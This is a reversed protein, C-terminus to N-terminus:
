AGPRVSSLFNVIKTVQTDWSIPDPNHRGFNGHDIEELLCDLFEEPEATAKVTNPLNSVHAHQSKDAVVMRTGSAYMDSAVGSVYQNAPLETWCWLLDCAQLRLNLEATPLFEHYHMFNEPHAIRFTALHQKMKRTTNPHDSALLQILWGHKWSRPILQSIFWPFWRHEMLFGSAGIVVPFRTLAYHEKLQRRDTLQAPIWAPHSIELVPKSTERILSKSMVIFGVVYDSFESVDASHGFLFVPKRSVSCYRKLEDSSVVGWEHQVVVVDASDDEGFCTYTQVQIGRDSLAKAFHHAFNAVGCPQGYTTAIQQIRLSIM